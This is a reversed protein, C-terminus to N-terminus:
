TTEREATAREISKAYIAQPLISATNARSGYVFHNHVILKDIRLFPQTEGCAGLIDIADGGQALIKYGSMATAYHATALWAM